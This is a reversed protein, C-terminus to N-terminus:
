KKSSSGAKDEHNSEPRKQLPPGAPSNPSSNAPATNQDELEPHTLQVHKLYDYEQQKITILCQTYQDQLHGIWPRTAFHVLYKRQNLRAIHQRIPECQKEIADPAPPPCDKETRTDFHRIKKRHFPLFATFRHLLSPKAPKAAETTTTPFVAGDDTDAAFTSGIPLTLFLLLVLPALRIKM